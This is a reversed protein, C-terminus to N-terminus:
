LILMRYKMIARATQCFLLLLRVKTTNYAILKMVFHSLTFHFTKNETELLFEGQVTPKHILEGQKTRTSTLFNFYVNNTTYVCYTTSKLIILNECKRSFIIKSVAYNRQHLTLKGTIKEHVCLSKHLNWMCLNVKLELPICWMKRYVTGHIFKEM